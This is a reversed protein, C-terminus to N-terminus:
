VIATETCRKNKKIKGTTCNRLSLFCCHRSRIQLSNDCGSSLISGSKVGVFCEGAIFSPLYSLLIATCINYLARINSKNRRLINWLYARSLALPSSIKRVTKATIWTPQMGTFRSDFMILCPDLSLLLRLSLTPTRSLNTYERSVKKKLDSCFYFDHGRAWLM